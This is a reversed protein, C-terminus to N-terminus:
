FQCERKMREELEMEHYAEEQEIEIDRLKDMIYSAAEASDWFLGDQKPYFCKDLMKALWKIQKVEVTEM